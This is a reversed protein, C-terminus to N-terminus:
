GSSGAGLPRPLTCPAGETCDIDVAREIEAAPERGAEGTASSPKEWREWSRGEVVVLECWVVPCHSFASEYVVM